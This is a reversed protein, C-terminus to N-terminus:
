PKGEQLKRIYLIAAWRDEPLVQIAYAPMIGQGKTIIHFIQGDPMNKARDALLSPPNPYRGIIPGDGQGKPGHCIQCFTQYAWKGRAINKDNLEIPNFVEKGARDAEERGEQFPFTKWGMPITGEPPHMLAQGRPANPNKDYAEYPVPTVMGPLVIYGPKDRDAKCGAILAAAGLASFLMTNITLKIM